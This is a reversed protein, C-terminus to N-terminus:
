IQEDFLKGCHAITTAKNAIYIVIAFRFTNILPATDRKTIM